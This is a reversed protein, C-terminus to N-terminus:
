GTRPVKEKLYTRRPGIVITCGLTEAIRELLDLGPLRERREVKSLTGVHIMGGSRREIDGLSLGRSERLDRIQFGLPDGRSDSM